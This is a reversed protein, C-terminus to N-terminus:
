YMCQTVYYLLRGQDAMVWEDPAMYEDRHIWIHSRKWVTLDNTCGPWGLDYSIFKGDFDVIGQM